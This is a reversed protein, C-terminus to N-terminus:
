PTKATLTDPTTVTSFFSAVDALGLGDDVVLGTAGKNNNKAFKHTTSIGTYTLEQGNSDTGETKTNAEENPISFMGKYRWVYRATGDTAETKYGLAFYKPTAEGEILAGTTADYKQGTIKAVIELPIMSVELGIEDKGKSNIVIVPKNDYFKTDNNVETSKTVKGAGALEYVQGTVYGHDNGTENDDVTVEAIVLNEVGRYEQYKM